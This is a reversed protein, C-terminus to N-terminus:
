KVEGNDLLKRKAAIEDAIRKADLDENVEALETNLTKIKTRFISFM